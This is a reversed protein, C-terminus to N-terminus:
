ADSLGGAPEYIRIEINVGATKEGWGTVATVRAEIRCGEAWWDRADGALRSDLFGIQRDDQLCVAVANKDHKNKDDAVLKLKTGSYVDERIIKQRSTNNSNKYSVGVVKTFLKNQLVESKSSGGFISKIWGFM